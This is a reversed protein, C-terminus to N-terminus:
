RARGLLLALAVAGQLPVVGNGAARLRDVRAAAGDALRRLGPEVAPRLHEPVQRWADLDAPGPPFLARHFDSTPGPAQSRNIPGHPECCEPEPLRPHSTDALVGRGSDPRDWERDRLGDHAGLVREIDRQAAANPLQALADDPGGLQDTAERQRDQGESPGTGRYEQPWGLTPKADDVDAGGGDAFGGGGSPERLKGLGRLTRYALVFARERKHSGGVDSARLTGWEANLGIKALEGLVTTGAPFNLVPPVNELFLWEVSELERVLRIIEFFLGSREGEIGAQRGAVSLDQCPFGGVLGAVRGRFLEGPFTRIDSWIPAEELGGDEMRAALIAAAPAEREVFCVCRAEPLACRVALDLGGYGSFLSIYTDEAM